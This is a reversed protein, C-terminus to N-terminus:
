VREWDERGVPSGVLLQQQDLSGLQESQSVPRIHCLMHPPPRLLITLSMIHTSVDM